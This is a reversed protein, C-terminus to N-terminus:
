GLGQDGRGDPRHLFLYALADAVFFLNRLCKRLPPHAGGLHGEWRLPTLPPNPCCAQYYSPLNTKLSKCIAHYAQYYSPVTKQPLSKLPKCIAHYAQYPM